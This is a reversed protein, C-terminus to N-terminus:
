EKIVKVNDGAESIVMTKKERYEPSTYKFKATDYIPLIRNSNSM